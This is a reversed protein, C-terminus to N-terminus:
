NKIGYRKKSFKTAMDNEVLENLGDYIDKLRYNEGIPHLKHKYVADVDVIDSTYLDKLQNTDKDGSDEREIEINRFPVSVRFGARGVDKYVSVSWRAGLSIGKESYSARPHLKLVGVYPNYFESTMPLYSDAFIESLRFDSKNFYLATLPKTNFGHGMFCKHAERGYGTAWVKVGYDGEEQEEFVYRMPGREGILPSRLDGAYTMGYFVTAACVVSLIRNIRM